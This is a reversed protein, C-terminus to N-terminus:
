IKTDNKKLFFKTFSVVAKHKRLGRRVVAFVPMAYYLKNAWDWNEPNTEALIRQVEKKYKPIRRYQVLSALRFRDLFIKVDKREKEIERYEALHAVWHKDLPPIKGRPKNAIPTDKRYVVLAENIIPIKGALCFSFWLKWDEYVVLNEDFGGYKFFAAKKMMVSGTWLPINNTELIGNMLNECVIAGPAVHPFQIIPTLGEAETFTMLSCVYCDALPFKQSLALMKELFLPTQWDDSDLFVVLDAKANKAGLNRASSVGGNQKHFVRIRPDSAAYDDCIKGSNDPSGDDVLIMEFDEFTQALVSEICEALYKETKYLPIIVSVAPNAPASSNTADM